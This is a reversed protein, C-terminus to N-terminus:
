YFLLLIRKEAEPRYRDKLEERNLLQLLPAMTERMDFIGRKKVDIHSADIIVRRVLDAKLAGLGDILCHVKLVIHIFKNKGDDLLDLIRQPTGVGINMRTKKVSEIAEKLKIHKAFLKEVKADKTQFERVARTLDAARQGAGTILLTHPSGLNKPPKRLDPKRAELTSYENIFIPLNKLDRVEKWASTEVISTATVENALKPPFLLTIFGCPIRLDELEVVSMDDLNRKTKQAIHDALLQTDMHAFLNNIGKETDLAEDYIDTKRESKRRKSASKQTNAADEIQEIKRKAPKSLIEIDKDSGAEFSQSRSTMRISKTNLISHRISNGIIPLFEATSQFFSRRAAYQLFAIQTKQRLGTALKLREVV